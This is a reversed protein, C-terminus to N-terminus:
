DRTELCRLTRRIRKGKFQSVIVYIKKQLSTIMPQKVLVEFWQPYLNWQLKKCHFSLENAVIRKNNCMRKIRSQNFFRVCRLDMMGGHVGANNHCLQLRLNCCSFMLFERYLAPMAVKIKMIMLWLINQRSSRKDSKANHKTDAVSMVSSVTVSVVMLTSM